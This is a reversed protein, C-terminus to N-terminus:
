SDQHIAKMPFGALCSLPTTKSSEEGIPQLPDFPSDAHANPGQAPHALNPAAAFRRRLPRNQLCGSSRESGARVHPIAPYVTLRTVIGCCSKRQCRTPYRLCAAMLFQSRLNQSHPPRTHVAVILCQFLQSLSRQDEPRKNAIQLHSPRNEHNSWEVGPPKGPKWSPPSGLSSDVRM